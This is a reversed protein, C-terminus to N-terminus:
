SLKIGAEEALCRSCMGEAEDYTSDADLMFGLARTPKRCRTCRPMLCVPTVPRAGRRDGFNGRGDEVSREAKNM